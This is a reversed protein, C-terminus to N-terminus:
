YFSKIHQSTVRQQSQLASSDGSQTKSAAQKCNLKELLHCHINYETFIEKVREIIERNHENVEQQDEIISMYNLLISIDKKADNNKRILSLTQNQAERVTNEMRQKHQHVAIRM